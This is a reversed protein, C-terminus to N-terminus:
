IGEDSAFLPQTEARRTTTETSGALYWRTIVLTILVDTCTEILVMDAQALLLNMYIFWDFWGYIASFMSIEYALPHSLSRKQEMAEPTTDQIHLVIYPQIINSHVNRLSTNVLSYVVIYTYRPWTDIPSGFIVLDEHPGWRYFPDDNNDKNIWVILGAVLVMWGAIIRSCLLTPIM